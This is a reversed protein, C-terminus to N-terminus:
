SLTVRQAFTAPTVSKQTGTCNTTRSPECNLLAESLRLSIRTEVYQEPEEFTV